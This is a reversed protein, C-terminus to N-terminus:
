VVVQDVMEELHPFLVQHEVVLDVVVLLKLEV